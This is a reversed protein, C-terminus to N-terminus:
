RRWEFYSFVFSKREWNGLSRDRVGENGREVAAIPLWLPLIRNHPCQWRNRGCLFRITDQHYIVDM